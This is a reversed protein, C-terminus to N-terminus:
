RQYLLRIAEGTPTDAAVLEAPTCDAIVHGGEAGAGPGLEIVRDTAAVSRLDHEVIVVTDGRDVMSRLETILLEADAPHLGTTPEDLLYM